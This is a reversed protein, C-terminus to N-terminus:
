ALKEPVDGAEVFVVIAFPAAHQAERDVVGARHSIRHGGVEEARHGARQPDNGVVRFGFHSGWDHIVLNIDDLELAAIFQKTWDVHQEFQHITPDIPKDSKGMGIHDPVIVRYGYSVLVPVMRRYLYSWAPQGHLMLVVPGDSPGADIYHMRLGDIRVYNARFRYGPLNRFCADPTRVFDVGLATTRIEIEDEPLDCRSDARLATSLSMLAVLTAALLNRQM